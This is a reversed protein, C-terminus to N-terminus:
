SGPFCFECLCRCLPHPDSGLDAKSALFHSSKLARRRSQLKVSCQPPAVYFDDMKQSGKPRAFEPLSRRQEDSVIRLPM